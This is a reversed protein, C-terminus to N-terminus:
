RINFFAVIQHLCSQGWRCCRNISFLLRCGSAEARLYYRKRSMQAIPTICSYLTMGMDFSRNNPFVNGPFDFINANFL